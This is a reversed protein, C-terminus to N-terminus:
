WGKRENFKLEAAAKDPGVVEILAGFVEAYREPTDRAPEHGWYFEEEYSDCGSCSGYSWALVGYTGDERLLLHVGWGQYDDLGDTQIVKWGLHEAAKTTESLWRM